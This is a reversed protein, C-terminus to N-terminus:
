RQRKSRTSTSPSSAEEVSRYRSEVKRYPSTQSQLEADDFRARELEAEFEKSDPPPRYSGHLLFDARVAMEGAINGTAIREFTLTQAQSLQKQAGIKQALAFYWGAICRMAPDYICTGKNKGMCQACAAAPSETALMAAAHQMCARMDHMIHMRYTSWALRPLAMRIGDPPAWNCIHMAGYIHM